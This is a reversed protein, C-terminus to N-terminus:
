EGLLSIHPFLPLFFEKRLEVLRGITHEKLGLKLLCDEADGDLLVV